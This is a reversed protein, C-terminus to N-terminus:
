EAAVPKAKARTRKGTPTQEAPDKKTARLSTSKQPKSYKACWDDGMAVRVKTTDLRSSSVDARTVVFTDGDALFLKRRIFESKLADKEVEAAKCLEQAAGYADALMANTINAFRTPQVPNVAKSARM